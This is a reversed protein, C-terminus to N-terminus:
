FDEVYAYATFSAAEGDTFYYVNEKGNEQYVFITDPMFELTKQVRTVRVVNGDTPRYLVVFGDAVRYEVKKTEPDIGRVFYKLDDFDTYKM